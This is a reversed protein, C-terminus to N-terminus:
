FTCAYEEHGDMPGYERGAALEYEHGAVPEREVTSRREATPEREATTGREGTPGRGAAPGNRKRNGERQRQVRRPSIPTRCNRRLVSVDLRLDPAERVAHRASGVGIARVGKPSRRRTVILYWDSLIAETPNNHIDYQASRRRNKIREIVRCATSQTVAELASQERQEARDVRYSSNV